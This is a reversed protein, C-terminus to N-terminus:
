NIWLPNVGTVALFVNIILKYQCKRSTTQIKIKVNTYKFPITPYTSCLAFLLYGILWIMPKKSESKNVNAATKTASFVRSDNVMTIHIMPDKATKCAPRWSKINICTVSPSSPFAFMMLIAYAAKIAITM